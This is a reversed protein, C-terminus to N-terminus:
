SGAICSTTTWCRATSGSAVCRFYLWSCCPNSCSSPHFTDSMASLAQEVLEKIGRLPHDAPVREEPSLLSFMAQQNSERGRMSGLMSMAVRVTSGQPRNEDSNKLLRSPPRKSRKTQPNSARSEARPAKSRGNANALSTVVVTVGTTNPPLVVRLLEGSEGTRTTMLRISDPNPPEGIWQIKQGDVYGSYETLRGTWVVPRSWSKLFKGYTYYTVTM